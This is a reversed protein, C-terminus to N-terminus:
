QLALRNPNPKSLVRLYSHLQSFRLSSLVVSVTEVAYSALLKRLAASPADPAACSERSSVGFTTSPGVVPGVLPMCYARRFLIELSVSPVVDDSQLFTPTGQWRSWRCRRASHGTLAIVSIYLRPLLIRKAVYNNIPM